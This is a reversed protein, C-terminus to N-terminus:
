KKSAQSKMVIKALTERPLFKSVFTLIQSRLGEVRIVQRSQLADYGAQAVQQPSRLKGQFIPAKEADATDAFNTQTPSPCLATVSVGSGRLEENLAVSFSLVYAKTAYYVTMLPGPLFAAVSALNLIQGSKHEIMEPLFLKCLQTLALVNLNIEAIETELPIKVFQGYTGFGANNILTQVILKNKKAFEFVKLPGDADGLDVAVSWVQPSGLKTLETETQALDAKSRAVIVLERGDRAYLRALERGIGSTAGTILTVHTTSNNMFCEILEV